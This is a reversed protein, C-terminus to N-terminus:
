KFYGTLSFYVGSQNGAGAVTGLDVWAVTVNFNKNPIYAVFFDKADDEALGTINDPKQRYEIGLVLQRSLFIGASGESMIEYDKNESGGYGLLGFQNAKTARLTLDWVFNYGLVAGLHAKSASVYFDTGHDTKDAGLLGALLEDELKKYQIGVSVQPWSSYILDGYLRVKAGFIKQNIEHPTNLLDFTQQALSLEIRDFLGTSFGYANLRYDDFTVQTAFVNISTEDRSDYGALVAWPVLGGGASGEIQTVGATEQLKGDSAFVSSTMIVLFLLCFININLFLAM